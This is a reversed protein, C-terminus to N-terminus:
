SSVDITLASEPAPRHIDEWLRDGYIALALFVLTPATTWIIELTNNGHTYHAPVGPRRRYAILYYIYTGQTLIFVVLTLWFIIKIVADIQIGTTTVCPPLGYVNGNREEAFVGGAMLLFLLYISGSLLRSSMRKIASACLLNMIM